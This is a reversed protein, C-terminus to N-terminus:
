TPPGVTRPMLRSSTSDELGRVAVTLLDYLGRVSPPVDREKLDGFPNEAAARGGVASVLHHDRGGQLLLDEVEPVVRGKRSV